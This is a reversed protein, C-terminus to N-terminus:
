LFRLVANPISLTSIYHSHTIDSPYHIPISPNDSHSYYLHYIDIIDNQAGLVLLIFFSYFFGFCWCRLWHGSCHPHWTFSVIQLDNVAMRHTMAEAAEAANM